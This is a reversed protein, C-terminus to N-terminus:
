DIALEGLEGGFHRWDTYRQVHEVSETFQGEVVLISLGRIHGLRHLGSHAAPAV